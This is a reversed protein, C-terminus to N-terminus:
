RVDEKFIYVAISRDRDFDWDVYVDTVTKDLIEGAEVEQELKRKELRRKAAKLVESYGLEVMEKELLLTIGQRFVALARPAVWWSDMYEPTKQIEATVQAIQAHLLEKGEYDASPEGPIPQILGVIMGSANHLGWDYYFESIGLGAIEKLYIKMEPLLSEMLLERTHRFAKEEEQTLLFQEVPGMFNRLHFMICKDSLFVGISEPGKGFRARLLKAVYSTAQSVIEKENM